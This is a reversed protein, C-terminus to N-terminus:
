QRLTGQLASPHPKLSVQVKFQNVYDIGETGYDLNLLGNMLNVTMVKEKETYQSKNSPMFVSDLISCLRAVEERTLVIHTQGNKFVRM